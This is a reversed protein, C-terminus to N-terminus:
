CGSPDSRPQRSTATWTSDIPLESLARPKSRDPGWYAPDGVVVAPRRKAAEQEDFSITAVVVTGPIYRGVM